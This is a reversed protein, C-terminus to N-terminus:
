QGGFVFEAGSLLEYTQWSPTARIEEDTMGNTKHCRLIFEASKLEQEDSPPVFNTGALKRYTAFTTTRRLEEPLMGAGLHRRLIREAMELDIDDVQLSM